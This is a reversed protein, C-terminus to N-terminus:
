HEDEYEQLAVSCRTERLWVQIETHITLVNHKIESPNIQYIAAEPNHEM